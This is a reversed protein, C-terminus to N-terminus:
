EDGLIMKKVKKGLIRDIQSTEKNKLIFEEIFKDGIDEEDKFLENIAIRTTKSTKAYRTLIFRCLESLTRGDQTALNKLLKKTEPDIKVNIKSKLMM